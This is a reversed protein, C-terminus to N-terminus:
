GTGFFVIGDNSPYLICLGAGPHVQMSPLLMSLYMGNENNRMHIRCVNDMESSPVKFKKICIHLTRVANMQDPM